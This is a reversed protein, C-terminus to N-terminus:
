THRCNTIVMSRNIDLTARNFLTLALTVINLGLKLLIETINHLNTKNTSSVPTGPSFWLVAALWQGLEDCMITDLEGGRLRIQVWLTLPSLCRNCLFNYVWSGYSWSWLLGEHTYLYTEISVFIGYSMYM